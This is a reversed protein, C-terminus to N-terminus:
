KFIIILVMLYSCDKKLFGAMKRHFIFKLNLKESLIWPVISESALTQNRNINQPVTTDQSWGAVPFQTFCM